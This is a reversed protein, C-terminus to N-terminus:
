IEWVNWRDNSMASTKPPFNAFVFVHPPNWVKMGSEYKGSFCMGDKLTELADYSVFNEKERTINFIAIKVKSNMAYMIDSAKGGFVYAGHHLVLHKAFSTKGRNGTGEWIWHITRDDPETRVIDLVRQQWDYLTKGELPDKVRLVQEPWTYPGQVRTEEKLCYQCAADINRPLRIWAKPDFHKLFFSKRQKTNLQLTIGWHLYGAEEGRELQWTAQTCHTKIWRELDAASVVPRPATPATPDSPALHALTMYWWRCMSTTDPENTTHAPPPQETNGVEGRANKSCSPANNRRPM